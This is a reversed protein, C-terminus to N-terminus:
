QVNESIVLYAGIDFGIAFASGPEFGAARWLRQLDTLLVHEDTDVPVPPLSTPRRGLHQGQIRKKGWMEQLCSQCFVIRGAGILTFPHSYGCLCCSAGDPVNRWRQDWTAFVRDMEDEIAFLQEENV